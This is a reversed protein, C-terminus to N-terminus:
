KFTDPLDNEILVVDGPQAHRIMWDNAELFTNFLQIEDERRGADTLGNLIADRNYAGVLAIFEIGSEAIQRGFEYNKDYQQAGLEIMGPTIIFRRGTKMQSLVEVAMSAGVPNSNFADDLITLGNGTGRISLRHEVAEIHSVGYKIKEENMGLAKACAIAAVLNSINHRGLLRTEFDLEKGDPCELRFRTGGAHYEIEKVRYEAETDGKIDTSYRIAHCNDVTRDAIERYDNNLIATGEAPLSDILEFKTSVVNEISGFTELHQPGVATLIGYHPHVLDCIEGIDGKQKAGMEAIFVQHFPKLHENVTRVVGLTTNFSGPTMLTEFQESLIRHLYHKTSTKGYSGTIGIIRLDPMSALKQKAENYFGRNIRNEVPILLYYSSYIVFHSFCYLLLLTIVATYLPQIAGFLGLCSLTVAGGIIILCIITSVVSLRVVRKTVSLPKKYRKRFEKVGVVIAFFIICITTFFHLRFVALGFLLLFIAVLRRMTTTDGSQRIWRSYREPRYSNQQFMMLDRKIEGFLLFVLSILCIIYFIIKFQIM